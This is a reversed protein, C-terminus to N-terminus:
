GVAVTLFRGFATVCEELNKPAAIAHQKSKRLVRKHESFIQDLSEDMTQFQVRPNPVPLGTPGKTTIRRDIEDALGTVVWTGDDLESLFMLEFSGDGALIAAFGDLLGAYLRCSAEVIQMRIREQWSVDGQPVLGMKALKKDLMDLAKPLPLEDLDAAEPMVESLVMTLFGSDFYHKAQLQTAAFARGALEQPRVDLVEVVAPIWVTHHEDEVRTKTTERRCFLAEAGNWDAMPQLAAYGYEELEVGAPPPFRQADAWSKAFVSILTIGVTPVHTRIYSGPVLALQSAASSNLNVLFSDWDSDFWVLGEARKGDIEYKGVWNTDRRDQFPLLFDAADTSTGGPTLVIIEEPGRWTLRERNLTEHDIRYLTIRYDGPPVNVRGGKEAPTEPGIRSADNSEVCLKGSPLRLFATQPELWRAVSMEHETLTDGVLVAIELDDDQQLSYGLVIGQRTLDPFRAPMGGFGSDISVTRAAGRAQRRGTAGAADRIMGRNADDYLWVELGSNRVSLHTGGDRVSSRNRKPKAM